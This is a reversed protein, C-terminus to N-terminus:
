EKPPSFAEAVAVRTQIPISLASLFGVKACTGGPYGGGWPEACLRCACTRPLTGQDQQLAVRVFVGCLPEAREPPGVSVSPPSGPFTCM